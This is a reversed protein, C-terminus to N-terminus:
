GRIDACDHSATLPRDTAKRGDEVVAGSYPDPAKGVLEAAPVADALQILDQPDVRTGPGDLPDPLHQGRAAVLGSGGDSILGVDDAPVGTPCPQVRDDAPAWAPGGVDHCPQRNRDAVRPDGSRSSLDHDRSSGEGIPGRATRDVDEIRSGASHSSQPAERPGRRM